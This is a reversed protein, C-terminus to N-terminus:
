LTVKRVLNELRTAHSSWERALAEDQWNERIHQAKAGCISAMEALTESLGVRDIIAELADSEARNM